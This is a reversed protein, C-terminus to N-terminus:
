LGEEKLLKDKTKQYEMESLEGKLRKERLARLKKGIEGFAKQENEASPGLNDIRKKLADVQRLLLAESRIESLTLKLPANGYWHAYDPNQHFAGKYSTAAYFTKMKFFLSEVLSLNEYLMHPGIVFTKGFLPHAPREAPSPALLGDRQLGEIIEQAESVLNASQEEIRDADDLNRASFNRTHCQACIAIMFEREQKRRGAEEKPIGSSIGRSVNHSGARMHCAACSPAAERNGQRYLVGHRSTEWMEQQPHDPGMHCTGCTAPDGATALGTGHKTHCVDCRTEVLHCATCGQNQMAPTQALFMACEVNVLPEASGPKHCLACSKKQEGTVRENRTCARGTRLSQSHKSQRHDALATKHCTGCRAADVIVTRQHNADINDGHCGTCGVQKQFHASKKWNEVIGPTQKEHCDLCPDGTSATAAGAMFLLTTFASLFFGNVKDEGFRIFEYFTPNLWPTVSHV